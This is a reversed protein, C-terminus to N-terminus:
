KILNQNEYINGMIKGVSIDIMRLHDDEDHNKDHMYFGAEEKDWKVIYFWGDYEVIDGEYIEKGNKDKLGTYQMIPYKGNLADILYSSQKIYDWNVVEGSPKNELAEKAYKPINKDFIRFKIEMM